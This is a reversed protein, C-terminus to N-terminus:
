SICSSATEMEPSGDTHRQSLYQHCGHRRCRCTNRGHRTPTAEAISSSHSTGADTGTSSSAPVTLVGAPLAHKAERDDAAVTVSTDRPNSSQLPKSSAGDLTARHSLLGVGHNM